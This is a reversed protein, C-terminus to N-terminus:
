PQVFVGNSRGFGGDTRFVAHELKKILTPLATESSTTALVLFLEEKFYLIFKWLNFGSLWSIGGFVVAIFILCTGYIVVMLNALPLLTGVGFKGVALAMAGFTGFPVVKIIVGVIAVLVHSIRDFLDVVPKGTKGIFSLGVGFLVSFMLVQLMDGKAFAEAVSTPIINVLFDITSESAAVRQFAALGKTDLSAPNINMGVGPAALNVFLMGILLALTTVVEFYILKKLGVRGLEKM